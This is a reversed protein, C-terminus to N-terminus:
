QAIGDVPTVCVASVVGNTANYQPKGTVSVTVIGDTEGVEAVSFGVQQWTVSLSNNADKTLTVVATGTTLDRMKQLETSGNVFRAVFNFLPVRDGVELRGQIQFGDQQGSGPFFGERFANDWGMELSEFNKLSVYDVGLITIAASYANLLNEATATPLIIGSPDTFAGSHTFEVTAKANARGVGKTINIKWSKVACGVLMRDLVRAAGPRIQEIYSFYPLELGDTVPNLPTCTYTYPGAGTKVVKGLGFAWLWAAFESSLYKELQHAASDVHSKFLQTAFEHGKGLEAADDEAMFKPNALQVNLKNLRWIDSTVNATSIDAQKKKGFGILLERINAM